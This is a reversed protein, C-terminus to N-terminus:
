DAPLDAEDPHRRNYRVSWAFSLGILIAGILGTITEPIHFRASLLMIAGLVILRGGERTAVIAQPDSGSGACNAVLCVPKGTAGHAGRLYQLYSAYIGQGGCYMNGRYTLLAIRM